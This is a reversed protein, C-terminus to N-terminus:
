NKLRKREKKSMNAEDIMPPSLGYKAELKFAVNMWETYGFRNYVYRGNDNTLTLSEDDCHKLEEPEKVSVSVKSQKNKKNAKKNIKPKEKQEPKPRQKQKKKEFPKTKHISIPDFCNSSQLKFQIMDFWRSININDFSYRQDGKIESFFSYICVFCVIDAASLTNGIIFTKLCLSDNLSNCYYNLKNSDAAIFTKQIIQGM